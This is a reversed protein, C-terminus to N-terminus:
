SGSEDQVLRVFAGILTPMEEPPLPLRRSPLTLGDLAQGAATFLSLEMADDVIRCRGFIDEGQAGRRVEAVFTRIEELGGTQEGAEALFDAIENATESFAVVGLPVCGQGNQFVGGRWADFLKARRADDQTADDHDRTGDLTEDEDDYEDQPMGAAEIEEWVPIDWDIRLGILVGFGRRSLDDTDGPPLDRPPKDAVIDLLVRRVGAYSLDDLADPSRWGPLLRLEESEPLAGSAILGAAVAEGDPPEGTPLAVPLAVLEAWGSPGIAACQAAELLAWDLEDGAADGDREGRKRIALDLVDTRGAAMLDQVLADFEGRDEDGFADLVRDAIPGPAKGFNEPGTPVSAEVGLVDLATQGRLLRGRDIWARRNEPTDERGSMWRRFAGRDARQVLVEVGADLMELAVSRNVARVMDLDTEGPRLTDLAEVDAYHTILLMEIDPAIDRALNVAENIRDDHDSTKPV